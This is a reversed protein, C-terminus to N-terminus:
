NPVHVVIRQGSRTYTRIFTEIMLYKEQIGVSSFTSFVDLRWSYQPHSTGSSVLSLFRSCFTVSFVVGKTETQSM